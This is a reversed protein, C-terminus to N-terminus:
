CTPVCWPCTNTLANPNTTVPWANYSSNLAPKNSCTACPEPWQGTAYKGTGCRQCAQIGGVLATGAPRETGAACATCTPNTTTSGTCQASIGYGAICATLGSTAHGHCTNCARQGGDLDEYCRIYQGTACSATACEACKQVPTFVMYRGTPCVNCSVRNTGQTIQYNECNACVRNATTTCDSVMRQTNPCTTCPLCDYGSQYTSGATCTTVCRAQTTIDTRTKGAPCAECMQHLKYDFLIGNCEYKKQYGVGCPSECGLTKCEGTAMDRDLYFHATYLRNSCIGCCDSAYDSWVRGLFCVLFTICYESQM